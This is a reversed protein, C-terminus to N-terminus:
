ALLHEGDNGGLLFSFREIDTCLDAADYGPGEVFEAIHRTGTTCAHPTCRRPVARLHAGSDQGRRTADM